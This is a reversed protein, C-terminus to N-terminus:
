AIEGRKADDMAGGKRVLDVQEAAKAGRRAGTSDWNRDEEKARKKWYREDAAAEKRREEEIKAQHKAQQAPTLSAWWAAEQEAKLRAEEAWKRRQAEMEEESPPKMSPFMEFWLDDVMQSQDRLAVEAGTTEGAQEKAARRMDELRECIRQTFSEAYSTRYAEHRQTHNTPEVGIKKCHRKYARILRGGDPWPVEEGSRNAMNAISVWKIGAEKLRYVNEDFGRDGDWSPQLSNLFAFHITHFLMQTYQVDEAFGALVVTGNRYSLAARVRTTRAIESLITRFRQSHVSNLDFLDVDERVPKRREEPKQSAALMAEDIAYKTMLKDAMALAAEREEQSTNEHEATALLKQVRSMIKEESM